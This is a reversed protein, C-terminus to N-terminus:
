KSAGCMSHNRWCRGAARFSSIGADGDAAYYAPVDLLKKARQQDPKADLSGLYTGTVNQASKTSDFASFVFHRGDPLLAPAYDAGGDRAVTLSSTAGGSASVVQMGSNVSGFVVANDRTWFGGLVWGPTDCLTQV